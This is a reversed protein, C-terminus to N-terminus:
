LPRRGRGARAPANTGSAMNFAGTTNGYLAYTGTATNSNGTTNSFLANVGSATNSYGTTNTYLAAYGSATNSSGSTNSRLTDKGFATNFGGSNILLADTGGATNGADDSPTPNPPGANVLPAALLLYSFLISFFIHM